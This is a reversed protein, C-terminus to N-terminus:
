AAFFQEGSAASMRFGTDELSLPYAWDIAKGDSRYIFTKLNELKDIIAQVRDKDMGLEGAIMEATLPEKADVMKVVIHHHVRREEDTLREANARAGKEGRQAGKESLLPPIRVMLGHFGMFLKHKPHDEM